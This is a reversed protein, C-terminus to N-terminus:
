RSMGPQAQHRPWRKSPTLRHELTVAMGLLLFLIQTTQPGSYVTAQIFLSSLLVVGLTGAVEGLPNGPTRRRMSLLLLTTPILAVLINLGAAPAGHRLAMLLYQNDISKQGGVVPVGVKGYGFLPQEKVLPIYNELLERRYSATEQAQTESAQRGVSAYEWLFFTVGISILLVSGLVVNRMIPKDRHWLGMMLILGLGMAMMPARSLTLVMGLGCLTLIGYLLWRPALRHRIMWFIPPIVMAYFFGLCIPHSIPGAVRRLGLRYLAGEWPVSGGWYARLTDFLNVGMRAEFPALLGILAGCAGLSLFVSCMLGNHAGIARGLVWPAVLLMCRLAGLNIAEASGALRNESIVMWLVLTVPILDLLRPQLLRRDRGILLAGTIVLLMYNHFSAEPAGELDWLYYNPLLVLAPIAVLVLGERFGRTMSVALTGIAPLLTLAGM